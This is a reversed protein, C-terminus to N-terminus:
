RKEWFERLKRAHEELTLMLQLLEGLAILCIALFVAILLIMLSAIWSVGPVVALGLQALYPPAFLVLIAMVAGLALEFFGLVKFLLALSRLM